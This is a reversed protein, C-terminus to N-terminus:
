LISNFDINELWELADADNSSTFFADWDVMADFDPLSDGPDQSQPVSLIRDLVQQIATTGIKCIRHNGDEPSVIEADSILTSLQQILCSRPLTNNNGGRQDQKLLEIALFSAAPLANYTL